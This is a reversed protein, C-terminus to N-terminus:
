GALASEIAERLSMQDVSKPAGTSTRSPNITGASATRNITHLAKQQARQGMKPPVVSRWAANLEILLQENSLEKHEVRRWYEQAVEARTAEDDMEPWTLADASTADAFEDVARAQKEAEIRKDEAALRQQIPQLKSELSRAIKQEQWAQWKPLAAMDVAVSGDAQPILFQPEADPASGRMSAMKRGVFSKFTNGHTPHAQVKQVIQEILAMPDPHELVTNTLFGDRDQHARQWWTVLDNVQEPKVGRLPEYGKWAEETAKKRANDLITPWKDAPPEGRSTDDSAGGEPAATDDTGTPQITAAGADLGPESTADGGDGSMAAEIDASTIDGDM